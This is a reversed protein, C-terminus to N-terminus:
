KLPEIPFLPKHEKSLQWNKLLENKHIDAWEIVLGLARPPLYGELIAFDEIRIVISYNGYRAHFHPPNHDDYYMIIVIGFFRSIEPM